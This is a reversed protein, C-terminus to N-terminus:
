LLTRIWLFKARDKLRTNATTATTKLEALKDLREFVVETTVPKSFDNYEKCYTCSLNCHHMPIVHALVPHKTSLLGKALFKFERLYIKILSSTKM